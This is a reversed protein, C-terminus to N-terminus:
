MRGRMQTGLSIASVKSKTEGFEKKLLELEAKIETNIDPEKKYNLYHLFGFLGTLATLALADGIGAGFYLIRALLSVLLITAVDLKM